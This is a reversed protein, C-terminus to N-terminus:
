KNGCMDPAREIQDQKKPLLEAELAGLCPAIFIVGTRAKILTMGGVYIWLAVVTCSLVTGIVKFAMSDLETGFQTTCVAFVGIPFTFGWWGMNFGIKERRMLDLVSSTALILWVLGFGWIVLALPISCAYIASGFLRVEEASYLNTGESQMCLSRVVSSLRLIAFGGQGCPGLPLYTSVILANPPIKHVALRHFYMGMILVAPMFGMGLLIYSVVVTLRAHGASLYPAVIAGSASAVITSVSPQLWVGTVSSVSHDHRTFMVFPVGVAIVAAVVSDVWWLVWAVTVWKGGFAPICAFVVMNVITAFGMPLTGLFLSQTPHRLMRPFVIPYLIYRLCSIGFFVVFLLVNLCFIVVGIVKLGPFQFPLNHLLISVIGTGMNVSFWSPTFNLIRRRWERSFVKSPPAPTPTPNPPPTPATTQSM